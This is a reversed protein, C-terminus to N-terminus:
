GFGLLRELFFVVWGGSRYLCIELFHFWASFDTDLCFPESLRFGLVSVLRLARSWVECCYPAEVLCIEGFCVELAM